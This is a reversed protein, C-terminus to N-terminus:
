TKKIAYIKSRKFIPDHNLWNDLMHINDLPIPIYINFIKMIYVVMYQTNKKRRQCFLLASKM